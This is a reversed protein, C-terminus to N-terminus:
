CRAVVDSHGGIYKTTSHLVIDAGLTLPQQLAPSAIHQGGLVMTCPAAPQAAIDAISLLLNTLTEVWILWTKATIAQLVADLDSLPVPTHM